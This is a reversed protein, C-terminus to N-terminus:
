ATKVSRVNVSGSLTLFSSSMHRLLARQSALNIALSKEWIDADLADLTQGSPFIGANSVLIDLGGFHQIASAIAGKVAAEDTVDGQIGVLGPKDFM